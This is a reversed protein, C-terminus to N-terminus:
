LAKAKARFFPVWLPTTVAILAVVLLVSSIPRTVFIAFSGHSITLSQRLASEFLPGLVLGLVM